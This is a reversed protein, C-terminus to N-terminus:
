TYSGFVLVVPKKGQFGSLTVTEGKKSNLKKLTFDPAKDGAKLRDKSRRKSQSASKKVTKRSQRKQSQVQESSAQVVLMAVLIVALSRVSNVM